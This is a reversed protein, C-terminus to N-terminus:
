EVHGGDPISLTALQRSGAGWRWFSLTALLGLLALAMGAISLAVRWAMGGVKAAHIPYLKEVVASATGGSAPDERALVSADRPDVWVYSRGNPTWEFGQKYRLAIPGGPTGMMLRRPAAGPFSASANTMVAEWDTDKGTRGLDGPFRQVPKTRALPSLLFDSAAPFVMLSGTVAMVLLLPSAVAGLDRHHRIIASRTYRAPWARIRFTKRMPWWLVLGSIAFAMLLIGLLGTVTKGLEGLLLYHHLDFLWLEPREWLGSWREVVLGDHAIYAGSGDAYIAQHLGFGEGAFTIRSLDPGVDLAVLVARALTRPDNAAPDQAGELLIWNDEWLLLTGSLAIIALLLGVVGGTWRHLLAVLNM